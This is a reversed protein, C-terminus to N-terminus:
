LEGHSLAVKAPALDDHAFRVAEVIGDVIATFTAPRFGSTSLNYLLHGCYGGPGSHTHTTTILTNQATYSDGYSAALRRLV